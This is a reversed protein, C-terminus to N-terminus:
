KGAKPRDTDHFVTVSTKFISGEAQPRSQMISTGIEPPLPKIFTKDESLELHLFFSVLKCMM